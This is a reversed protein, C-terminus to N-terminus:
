MQAIIIKAFSCSNLEFLDIKALRFKFVNLSVSSVIDNDLSNWINVIRVNFYKSRVNLNCKEIDLKLCHGRSQYTSYRFFLEFPIDVLNHVIKYVMVLDSFIRRYLLSHMNLIMLRHSYSSYLIRARKCLKRTFYKQVKEIRKIDALLYPTWVSTCYELIPRVYVKFAKVMLGVNNSTFCKHILYSRSYALASIKCCQASFKLKSDITVGIDRIENVLLLDDGNLAYNLTPIKMNGFSIVNCKHHAINLQWDSSWECFNVLSEHLDNFISKDNINRSLYFKCDDAFLKVKTIGHLCDTIDNIYILFLLPGLVSGQPVGSTVPLFDSINSNICVSQSRDTLFSSIWILLEYEFGYARLKYILKKHSVSDFAKAFDIYVADVREKNDVSVTIDNLYVLLQSCTSKRSLFGYQDASIINSSNLYSLCNASIISEMIKCSICTLSIPRYNRVCSRSGKKFIPCVIAKKWDAPLIGTKMSLEFIFSLPVAISLAINKLFLAPFGDPTKSLKNPLKSINDFVLDVPFNVSAISTDVRRPFSPLSGNDITFVSVFYDNFLNCKDYDYSFTGNDTQLPPITAKEKLKDNVFSYFSRPNNAEIVSSEINEHLKKVASIYQRSLSKYSSRNYMYAHRKKILLKRLLKPVKPGSRPKKIPVYKSICFNLETCFVNWVAEINGFCMSFANNWDYSLLHENIKSYNAKRFDYVPTMSEPPLPQTNCLISFDVCKHDNDLQPTFPDVTMVSNVISPHSVLILDLFYNGRTPATVLQTLNHQLCHLLFIDSFDSFHPIVAFTVWDIHFNFDGVFFIYNNCFRSQLLSMLECLLITHEKNSSASPPHYVTVMIFVFKSLYTIHLVLYEIQDFRDPIDQIVLVDLFSKVFVAVGGGRSNRDKRYMNFNSSNGIYLSNPIFTDLWTETVIFIHYIDCALLVRVDNIKNKISRANCM